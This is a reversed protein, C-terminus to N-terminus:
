HSKKEATNFGKSYQSHPSKYRIEKKVPQGSFRINDYWGTKKANQHFKCGTRKTQARQASWAQHTNPWAFWKTQLQEPGPLVIPSFFWVSPRGAHDAKRRGTGSSANRIQSSSPGTSRFLRKKPITRKQGPCTQSKLVGTKTTGRIKTQRTKEDKKGKWIHTFNIIVSYIGKDIYKKCLYESNHLFNADIVIMGIDIICFIVYNVKCIVVFNYKCM